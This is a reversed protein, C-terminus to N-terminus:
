RLTFRAARSVGDPTGIWLTYDGPELAGTRLNYIWGGESFRFARGNGNAAGADLDLRDLDLDQGNRALRVIAPAGVAAPGLAASGCWLGLKLPLTRGRRYERGSAPPVQGPDGLSTLPPLLGEVQMAVTISVTDPASDLDGDNVVLDVTHVGMPLSVIPAIGGIQGGGEAFPGSWGYILSDGDPDSSGSGDLTVSAGAAGSCAVVQDPGADATPPDNDQTDVQFEYIGIDLNDEQDTQYVVRFGDIDSNWEEHVSNVVDFPVEAPINYIKVNFDFGPKTPDSPRKDASLWDNSIHADQQLGALVVPAAGGTSITHVFVDGDTTLGPVAGDYVIHDGSIDPRRFCATGTTIATDVLTAFSVMRIQCGAGAEERVYVVRGADVAPDSETAGPTFTLRKQVGTALDRAYIERNGDRDDVWAVLGNKIAPQSQSSFRDAALAAPASGLDFMMIDGGGTDPGYDTYVGTFGSIDAEREDQLGHTIRTESNTGLDYLYIDANGNRFDTYVILDGSIAPDIQPAPNAILVRFSGSINVRGGVALPGPGPGSTMLVAGLATLAALGRVCRAGTPRPAADFPRTHIM